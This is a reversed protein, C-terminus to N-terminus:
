SAVRVSRSSMPANHCVCRTQLYVDVFDSYKRRHTVIREHGEHAITKATSITMPNTEQHKVVIATHTANTIATSSMDRVM